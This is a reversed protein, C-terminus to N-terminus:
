RLLPLLEFVVEKSPLIHYRECHAQIRNAIEALADGHCVGPRCWCGLVKGCLLPLQSCLHENHLLDHEYASVSELRQAVTAKRPLVISRNAWLSEPLKVFGNWRGIYIYRNESQAWGILAKDTSINAVVARGSEVAARLKLQDTTWQM